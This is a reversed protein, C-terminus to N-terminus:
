SIICNCKRNKNFNLEEIQDNNKQIFYRKWLVFNCRSYISDVHDCEERGKLISEEYSNYEKSKIEFIQPNLPYGCGIKLIIKYKDM